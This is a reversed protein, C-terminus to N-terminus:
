DCHNLNDIEFPSHLLKRFFANVRNYADPTYKPLCREEPVVMYSLNKYPNASEPLNGIIFGKM